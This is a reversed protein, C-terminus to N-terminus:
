RKLKKLEQMLDQITKLFAQRFLKVFQLREEETFSEYNLIFDRFIRFLDHFKDFVREFSDHYTALHRTVKYLYLLHGWIIKIQLTLHKKNQDLSEDQQNEQTENQNSEKNNEEEGFDFFDKEHLIM